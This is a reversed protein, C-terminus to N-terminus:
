EFWTIKFADGNIRDGPGREDADERTGHVTAYVAVSAADRQLNVWVTRQVPSNVLDIPSQGQRYAKGNPTWSFPTDSGDVIGAYFGNPFRVLATVERGDRTRHQKTMDFPKDSM